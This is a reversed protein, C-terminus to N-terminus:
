SKAAGDPPRAFRDVRFDNGLYDDHIASLTVTEWVLELVCEQRVHTNFRHAIFPLHM